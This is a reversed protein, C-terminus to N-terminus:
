ASQRPTWTPWQVGDVLIHGQAADGRFPGRIGEVRCGVCTAQTTSETVLPQFAVVWPHDPSSTQLNAPLPAASEFQRPLLEALPMLFVPVGAHVEIDLPAITADSPHQRQTSFVAHITATPLAIRLDGIWAGLWEPQQLAAHPSPSPM